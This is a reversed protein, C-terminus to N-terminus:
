DGLPPPAPVRPVGGGGVSQPGNNAVVALLPVLRNVDRAWAEGGGQADLANEFSEVESLEISFQIGDGILNGVVYAGYNSLVDFLQRGAKTELGLGGVSVNPPLALLSGMTLDPNKGGYGSPPPAAHGGDCRDAPWRFCGDERTADDFFHRGGWLSVKLAHLVPKGDILEGKRLTGGLASLGSGGQGGLRGDGKLDNDPFRFGIVPGTPDCRGFGSVEFLTHGDPQLLSASVGPNEAFSPPLALGDPVQLVGLMTSGDCRGSEGPALLAREPDTTNTVVFVSHGWGVYPVAEIETPVFRAASGIATNWISSSAFPWTRPDRVATRVVADDCAFWPLAACLFLAHPLARRLWARYTSQCRRM